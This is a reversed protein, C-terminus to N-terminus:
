RRRKLAIPPSALQHRVEALERERRAVLSQAEKYASFYHDILTGLKSVEKRLQLNERRLREAYSTTREKEATESHDVATRITM